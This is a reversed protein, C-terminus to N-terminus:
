SCRPKICLKGRYSQKEFSDDQAAVIGAYGVVDGRLGLLEGARDVDGEAGTFRPVGFLRFLAHIRGAPGDIAQCLVAVQQRKEIKRCLMPCM